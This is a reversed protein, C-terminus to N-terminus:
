FIYAVWLVIFIQITEVGKILQYNITSGHAYVGNLILESNLEMPLNKSIGAVMKKVINEITKKANNSDNALITGVESGIQGSVSWLLFLVIGGTIYLFTKM